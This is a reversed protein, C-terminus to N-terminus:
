EGRMKRFFDMVGTFVVLLIGGGPGLRLVKPMFGKYLASFGEEKMVTGVAPWAWNYKPTQGPVKPSNQIRSKVVDMPTNLITGATGGITGAILDNRTQQAKNGPEAAPLQARVQFICGFYGSNWLIHRWLTSELGNYLALPGESAVIKKVVDLMGNYKGASARDQLRIKVLEFPVVVFSETAGATAGTLVALSQTQKEVGFLGRYFAGWSDNAAFKTARKPAEMLIPATIGRYLRSAGENKVIKRLCDFMGNYYDEGATAVGKQLQVRTKVVDLPYMVLIESVGAVAGAAFQYIFPLPKQQQQQITNYGIIVDFSNSDVVHFDSVFTENGESLNWTINRATGIVKMPLRPRLVTNSPGDLDAVHFRNMREWTPESMFNAATGTDLIAIAYTSDELPIDGIRLLITRRVHEAPNIRKSRDDRDREERSDDSEEQRAFAAGQTNSDVSSSAIQFEDSMGQEDISVKHEDWRTVAADPVSTNDDWINLKRSLIVDMSVTRDRNMTMKIYECTWKFRPGTEHLEAVLYDVASREVRSLQLYQADITLEKARNSVLEHLGAQSLNMRDKELHRWSPMKNLPRDAKWLTYGVYFSTSQFNLRGGRTIVPGGRAMDTRLPTSGDPHVSQQAMENVPARPRRHRIPPRDKSYGLREELVAFDTPLNKAPLFSWNEPDGLEPLGDNDFELGDVRRKGDSTIMTEPIDGLSELDHHQQPDGSNRADTSTRDDRSSETEGQVDDLSDQVYSLSLFALSKLHQAIHESLQKYPRESVYPVLAEPVCDCLPCIFPDRNAVRRNRRARGQLQSKSLTEGHEAKLHTLFPEKEDFELADSHGIDCYWKETHVQQTWTM